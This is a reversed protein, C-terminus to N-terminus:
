QEDQLKRLRNHIDEPNYDPIQSFGEPLQWGYSNRICERAELRSLLEKLWTSESDNFVQKLPELCTIEGPVTREFRSFISDPANVVANPAIDYFVTAIEKKRLVPTIKFVPIGEDKGNAKLSFFQHGDSIGLHPPVKDAHIVWLYFRGPVFSLDSPDHIRQITSESKLVEM